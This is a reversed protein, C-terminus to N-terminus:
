LEEESTNNYLYLQRGGVVSGFQTLVMYLKGDFKVIKEQYSWNAQSPTYHNITEGQPQRNGFLQAVEQGHQLYWKVDAYKM